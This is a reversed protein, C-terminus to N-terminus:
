SEEAAPKPALTAALDAVLPRQKVALSVLARRARITGQAVKEQAAQGLNQVVANLFAMLSVPSTLPGKATQPIQLAEAAAMAVPSTLSEALGITQAGAEAATKLVAAVDVAQRSCGIGIVMDQPGIEALLRGGQVPDPPIRTALYGLRQLQAVFFAALYGTAEEGVVYVRRAQGIRNVVKELAEAPNHLLLDEMNQVDQRISERLFTPVGTALAPERSSAIEEKVLSRIEQALEPYGPYGLRQAFRVVTAPDVNLHQALASANMFAAERYHDLLFDAVKRYSPSLHQYMQKIQDRYM